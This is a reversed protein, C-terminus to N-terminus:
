TKLSPVDRDSKIINFYDYRLSVSMSYETIDDSTDLQIDDISEIRCSNFEFKMIKNGKNNNIEVWFDFPEDTFTSDEVNVNKLAKDIFEQYVKFDEDILIEISLGNFTITDSSLLAKAGGRGGVEPLGFTVGPINIATLYFPLLKLKDSGAIYNTKQALNNYNM